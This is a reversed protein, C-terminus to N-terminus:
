KYAGEKELEVVMQGYSIGREAALRCVQSITLTGAPASRPRRAALKGADHKHQAELNYKRCKECLQYRAIERQGGCKICLGAARRKERLLIQSKAEAM